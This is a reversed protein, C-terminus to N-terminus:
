SRNTLGVNFVMGKKLKVDGGVGVKGDSGHESSYTIEYVKDQSPVDGPFALDILDQYTLIKHHDFIFERTNIFITIEKDGEHMGHVNTYENKDIKLINESMHTM